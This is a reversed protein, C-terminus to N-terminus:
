LKIPELVSDLNLDDCYDMFEDRLTAIHTNAPIGITIHVSFMQTGTHPAPYSSTVMDEINIDRSAFFSALSHVIGPQDVSIVDVAYPILSKTHEREGTRKFSVVMDLHKELEPIANEIKALANWKGEILIMSAFEGGLVTMRSSEISCGHEVILKSISNVIGPRDKGLASIVLYTKKPQM